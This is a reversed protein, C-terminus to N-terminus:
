SFDFDAASLSGATVNNIRLSSADGLDIVAYWGAYTLNPAIFNAFNVGAGFGNLEIKDEGYTFGDILDVGDNLQIFFLDNGAGGYLSDNGKGGVIFDNGGEGSLLDNGDGGYLFDDGEWAFIVDHGAGGYVTDNGNGTFSWDNGDGLYVLTNGTNDYIWDNGDNGHLVDDGADGAISDNGIGGYITDNGDWGYIRDNGANGYLLDHGEDGYLQDYGDNGYITDNGTAGYVIDDGAGGTVSDAGADAYIVDNGDEGHLTDNGNWGYLYDRGAGGYVIDNGDDAFLSDNGNGGIISDNGNWGYLFDDGDGGNLTDNGDLGYITDNDTTGNLLDAGETGIIAEEGGPLTPTVIDADVTLLAIQEASLQDLTQYNQAISQFYGNHIRDDLYPIYGSSLATEWAYERAYASGPYELGIVFKGANLVNQVYRADYPGWPPPILDGLVFTSEKALGDIADIFRTNPSLPQDLTNIPDNNLLATANQAIIRFDPDIAKLTESINVVFDTMAAKIDGGPFEAEFAAVVDPVLYTDIVDMYVGNYGKAMLGEIRTIVVDQWDPDWFKVRFASSFEPNQGIIFDPPNTDWGGNVYYEHFNAAEGISTYVWLQKGEANLSSIQAASLPTEVDDVVTTLFDRTDLDNYTLGQLQYFFALKSM